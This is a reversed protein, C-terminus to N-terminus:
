PRAEEALLALLRVAQALQAELVECRREAQYARRRLHTERDYGTM